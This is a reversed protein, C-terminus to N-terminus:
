ENKQERKYHNMLEVFNSFDTISLMLEVAFSGEDGHAQLCRVLDEGSANEDVEKILSDIKAEFM